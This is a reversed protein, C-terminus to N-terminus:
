YPVQVRVLIIGGRPCVYENYRYRNPRICYQIGIGTCVVNCDHFYKRTYEYDIIPFEM